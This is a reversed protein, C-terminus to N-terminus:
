DIMNTLTDRLITLLPLPRMNETKGQYEMQSQLKQMVSAVHAHIRIRVTPTGQDTQTMNMRRYIIDRKIEQVLIIILMRDEQHVLFLLLSPHPKNFVIELPTLNIRSVYQQTYEAIGRTLITSTEQWVQESYYECEVLLHEMTEITGCRECNPSPTLKSKFAKNNTWVTRNLVQFATEKTKSTLDPINLVHYADQFTGEEPYYVGNKIRTQYAPAIKIEEDLKKRNLLRFHQSL